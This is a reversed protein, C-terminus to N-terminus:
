RRRASAASAMAWHEGWLGAGSLLADSQQKKLWSVPHFRASYGEALSTLSRVATKEKFVSLLDEDVFRLLLVFSFALLQDTIEKPFGPLNIEGHSLRDRIRPGEQHNLFDWLFEM